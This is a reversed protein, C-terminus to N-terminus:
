EFEVVLHVFIRRKRKTGRTGTGKAVQGVFVFRVRSTEQVKDVKGM